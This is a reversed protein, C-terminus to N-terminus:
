IKVGMLTWNLKMNDPQHNQKKKERARKGGKQRRRDELGLDVKCQVRRERGYGLDNTVAIM